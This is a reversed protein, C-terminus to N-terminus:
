QAELMTNRMKTNIWYRCLHWNLWVLFFDKFEQCCTEHITNRGEPIWVLPNSKWLCVTGVVLAIVFACACARRWCTVCSACCWVSLRINSKKKRNKHFSCIDLMQPPKKPTAVCNLQLKVIFYRIFNSCRYAWKCECMCLCFSNM